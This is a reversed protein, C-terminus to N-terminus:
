CSLLQISVGIFRAFLWFESGVEEEPAMGGPIHDGRGIQLVM